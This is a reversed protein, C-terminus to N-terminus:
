AFYGSVEKHSHDMDNQSQITVVKYMNYAKMACRHCYKWFLHLM